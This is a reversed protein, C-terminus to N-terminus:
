RILAEGHSEPALLVASCCLCRGEEVNGHEGERCRLCTGPM